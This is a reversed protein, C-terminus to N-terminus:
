GTRGQDSLLRAPQLAGGARAPADLLALGRRYWTASDVFARVAERDIGTRVAEEIRHVFEERSSTAFVGPYASLHPVGTSVVPLGLTLYEYVKIPDAGVSLAGSKFPVIGVNWNQSYAYLERHPVKGLLHVNDPLRVPVAEGYGIIHFVWESRARAAAAVLEWDFWAPTLYGFYGVVVKGTPLSRAPLDLDFSDPAVGNPVLAVHSGPVWQRALDGLSPAVATVACVNRALYREVAPEYWVAKGVKHFEDWDDIIDYVTSWGALNFENVWQFCMPHPFEFVCTRRLDPRAPAELLVQRHKEFVDMPLQFLNPHRSRPVPRAYENQWRFYLLIVAIDHSLFDRVIQTVRQGESEIYNVGAVFVALDQVRSQDVRQLFRHFAEMIQPEAVWMDSAASTGGTAGDAEKGVPVSERGKDPYAATGHQARAAVQAAQVPPAMQQTRAQQLLRGKFREKLAGPMLATAMKWGATFLRSAFLRNYFIWSPETWIEQLRDSLEQIRVQAFVLKRDIEVGRTKLSDREVELRGARERVSDLLATGSKLASELAAVRSELEAARERGRDREEVLRREVERAGALTERLASIEDVRRRLGRDLEETRKGAAVAESLARSAAEVARQHGIVAQALANDKEEVLSKLRAVEAVSERNQTAREELLWRVSKKEGAPKWNSIRPLHPSRRFPERGGTIGQSIREVTAEVRSRLIPVQAALQLRVGDRDDWLERMRREVVGRDLANVDVAEIGPVVVERALHSLKPDYAIPLFPVAQSLAFLCAHLRMGIMLDSRGVLGLMVESSVPSGLVVAPVTQQLCAVFERCFGLDDGSGGRFPLLLLRAELERAVSGVALTLERLLGPSTNGFARLAISILPSDREALGIEALLADAAAHDPELLVAPDFTVEVSRSVGLQSLLEASAADRVSIDAANDFVKRVMQRSSPDALPGVGQAFVVVPVGQISALLPLRLYYPLGAWTDDFLDGASGSWYDNCLGGGGFILADASALLKAQGHLDRRDVARVPHEQETQAPAQSVVFFEVSGAVRRFQRVTAALIAEDGLNGAGFFGHVVLRMGGQPVADPVECQPGSPVRGSDAQAGKSM